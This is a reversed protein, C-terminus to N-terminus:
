EGQPPLSDPDRQRIVPKMVLRAETVPLTLNGALVGDRLGDIYKFFAHPSMIRYGRSQHHARVVSEHLGQRRALESLSIVDVDDPVGDPGIAVVVTGFPQTRAFGKEAIRGWFSFAKSDRRALATLAGIGLVTSGSILSVKAFAYSQMAEDQAAAAIEGEVRTRLRDLRHAQDLRNLRRAELSFVDDLADVACSQADAREHLTQVLDRYHDLTAM